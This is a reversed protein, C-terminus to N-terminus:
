RTNDHILTAVDYAIDQESRRLSTALTAIRRGIVEEGDANAVIEEINIEIIYPAEGLHFSEMVEDYAKSFDTERGSLPKKEVVILYRYATDTAKDSHLQQELLTHLTIPVQEGNLLRSAGYPHLQVTFSAPSRLSEFFTANLQTHASERIEASYQVCSVLYPLALLLFFHKLM